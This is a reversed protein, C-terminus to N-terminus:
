PLFAMEQLHVKPDGGKDITVTVSRAAAAPAPLLLKQTSHSEPSHVRLSAAATTGDVSEVELALDYSPAWMTLRIGAIPRPEALRFVLVAPDADLTRAITDPDGDFLAEIDGIDFRPHSVVTETGGLFITSEVPRRRERRIAQFIEEATESYGVEVFFFWPKGDPTQIVHIPQGVTLMEHHQARRYEDATLVFTDGQSLEQPRYDFLYDDIVALRVRSRHQPPLFFDIFAEPFNAWSHSVAFRVKPDADLRSNLEGFLQRAGWQLGGMSYDDFWTPGNRLADATMASSSAAVGAAVLAAVLREPVRPQLWLRIRDLGIVALLVAPVMMALVRTIRIDVLAASFPAALVAILVLRHPASRVMERLSVALGLLIAPSLWLPLHGYGLMRHRVLEDVDDSFWYRPSLGKAYTAVFTSIKDSLPIDQIWYSGLDAFHDEVMEPHLIFRFRLYPAAVLIVTVLTAVAIMPRRRVVHRHYRWDTVLLLLLTIFIVGQGNSYSYFTAAAFVMAVPLWRPSVTRYLLYFLVFACYFGVMMATEFATRSHLFWAPLAAFVLGGIWWLRNRYGIKLALMLCAAGFAGVLVSTMRVVTITPEFVALAAAHLWVSLGLNYVKANRFYPPFLTGEPDRLGDALLREAINAHTAEDCFFYIPFDALGIIRTATYFALVAVFLVLEPRSLGLAHGSTRDPRPGEEHTTM